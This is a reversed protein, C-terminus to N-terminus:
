IMSDEMAGGSVTYDMNTVGVLSNWETLRGRDDTAPKVFHRLNGALGVLLLSYIDDVDLNSNYFRNMLSFELTTTLAGGDM